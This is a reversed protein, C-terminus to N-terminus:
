SKCLIIENPQGSIKLRVEGTALHLSMSRNALGGTQEAHITLAHERLIRALADRNAPGINFHAGGDLVGGAGAVRIQVRFKEAGLQYAARFLAPLGTDVFLAPQAAAKLPDLTSDPLMAHLLGGVRAVPDFIAVGLCSGLSYTTLVADPSNSVALDAVGVIVTKRLPATLPPAHM